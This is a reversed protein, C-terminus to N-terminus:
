NLLVFASWYYPHKFQPQNRLQQQSSRFADEFNKGNAWGSYFNTMLQKTAEDNVKWLSMIVQQSGAVRFSRALGQVSEGAVVEGKGTECASLVVLKTDSLDLHLAEYAPFYGDNSGNYQPHETEAGALILGSKFDPREMLTNLPSSSRKSQSFYGHTAIHLVEHGKEMSRLNDENALVATYTKTQLGKSTLIENVANIEETAGPLPSIKDTGFEPGGLLFVNALDLSDNSRQNQKMTLLNGPITLYSIDMQDGVFNKAEPNMIGSLNIQSYIGDNVLYVKQIDKLASSIPQWYNLYSVKDSIRANISNLYRKYHKQELASGSGLNVVQPQTEKPKIIFAFYTPDEQFFEGPAVKVIEVLAEGEMLTERLSEFTANESPTGTLNIKAALEQEIENIKTMLKEPSPADSSKDQADENYSNLLDERLQVWENFQNKVVDDESSMARQILQSSASFLIGKTQLRFNFADTLWEPNTQANSAVFLSYLDIHPKVNNWYEERQQESMTSFLEDKLSLYTTAVETMHEQAAVLQGLKWETFSLLSRSNLYNYSKTGLSIAHVGNAKEFLDKAQQFENIILHYKGQLMLAQGYLSHQEPYKETIEEQITTLRNLLTLKLSNDMKFQDLLVVGQLLSVQDYDPLKKKGKNTINEIVKSYRSLAGNHDGSQHDLLAQNTLMREYDIGYEPLQSKGINIAQALVKKGTAILGMKASLMAQNNLAISYVRSQRGKLREIEETADKLFKSAQNFNGLDAQLLAYNHKIATLVEADPALHKYGQELAYEYLDRAMAHKGKTQAYLAYTNLYDILVWYDATKFKSKDLGDVVMLILFGTGKPDGEKPGKINPTGIRFDTEEDDIPTLYEYIGLGLLFGAYGNKGKYIAKSSEYLFHKVKDYSQKAAKIKLGTRNIGDFAMQMSNGTVIGYKLTENAPLSNLAIVMEPDDTWEAQTYDRVMDVPSTLSSSFLLTSSGDNLVIFKAFGKKQSGDKLSIIMPSFNSNTDVARNRGEESLQMPSGLLGLDVIDAIPVSRSKKGEQLEVKSLQGDATKLKIVGFKTTGDKFTIYGSTPKTRKIKVGNTESVLRSWPFEAIKSSLNEQALSSDIFVISFIFMLVSLRAYKFRTCRTM